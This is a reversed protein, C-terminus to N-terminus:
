TYLCYDAKLVVKVVRNSKEWFKVHCLQYHGFTYKAVACFDPDEITTIDKNSSGSEQTLYEEGEPICITESQDLRIKPLYTDDEESQYLDEEQSYDRELRNIIGCMLLM